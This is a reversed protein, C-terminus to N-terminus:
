NSLRTHQKQGLSGPWLEYLIHIAPDASGDYVFMANQLFRRDQDSPQSTHAPAFADLVAQPVVAQTSSDENPKILHPLGEATGSRNQRRFIACSGLLVVTHIVTRQISQSGIRDPFAFDEPLDAWLEMLKVVEYQVACRLRIWQPHGILPHGQRTMRGIKAVRHQIAPRPVNCEPPAARSFSESAFHRPRAPTQKLGHGEGKAWAGGLFALNM